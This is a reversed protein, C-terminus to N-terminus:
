RAHFLLMMSALGNNVLHGVMGPVLSQTRERWIGFCLGLVLVHALAKVNDFYSGHLLLFVLCTFIVSRVPPSIKHFTSQVFGRFIVEELVPAVLTAFATLIILEGVSYNAYPQDAGLPLGPMRKELFLWLGSLMLTFSCTLLILKLTEWIYYQKPRSLDWGLYTWLSGYKWNLFVFICIWTLLTAAQQVFLQNAPELFPNILIITNSVLLPVLIYGSFLSVSVTYMDWPPLPSRSAQQWGLPNDDGNSSEPPPEPKSLSM